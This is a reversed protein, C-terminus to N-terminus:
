VSYTITLLWTGANYGAVFQDADFPYTAGYGGAGDPYVAGLYTPLLWLDVGSAANPISPDSWNLASVTLVSLANIQGVGNFEFVAVSGTDSVLTAGGSLTWFDSPCDCLIAWDNSPEDSALALIINLTGQTVAPFFASGAKGMLMAVFMTAYYSSEASFLSIGSIYEAAAQLSDLVTDPVSEGFMALTSLFIRDITITCDDKCRCFLDCALSDRTGGPTETYGAVFGEVFAEQFYNALDAWGNAGVTEALASLIPVSSVLANGLEVINTAVEINEMLDLLATTLTTVVSLCQSWLIDLDCGPNSELGLPATTVSTAPPLGPELGPALQPFKGGIITALANTVIETELAQILTDLGGETLLCPLFDDCLAPRPYETMAYWAELIQQVQEPNDRYSIAAGIQIISVFKLWYEQPVFSVIWAGGPPVSRSANPVVSSAVPLESEIPIAQQADWTYPINDPM